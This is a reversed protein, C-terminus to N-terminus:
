SINGQKVTMFKDKGENKVVDTISYKTDPRNTWERGLKKNELRSDCTEKWLQAKANTENEVLEELQEKDPCICSEFGILFTDRQCYYGVCVQEVSVNTQHIKVGKKSFTENLEFKNSNANYSIISEDYPILQRLCFSPCDMNKGRVLVKSTKNESPFSCVRDEERFKQSIYGKQGCCTPVNQGLTEEITNNPLTKTDCAMRVEEKHDSIDENEDYDPYDIGRRAESPCKKTRLQSIYAITPTIRQGPVLEQTYGDRNSIEWCCTGQVTIRNTRCIDQGRNCLITFKMDWGVESTKIIDGRKFRPSIILEGTCGRIGHEGISRAGGYATSAFLGILVILVLPAHMKYLM